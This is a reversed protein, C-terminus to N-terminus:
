QGMTAANAGTAAQPTSPALGTSKKDKGPEKSCDAEAQKLMRGLLVRAAGVQMATKRLGGAPASSIKVGAAGTNDLVKDLVKDTSSTLAPENLVQNVDKKPDAKAQGKTYNIAAENSSILNKQSNVDAPESPVGEGSASAGDPLGTQDKGASITAPNIADEATKRILAVLGSSEKSKHKSHEGHLRSAEEGHRGRISGAINGVQSGGALGLLAGTGAGSKGGKLAGIGAGLAAGAAGGIATGKLSQGVEHKLAGGFAKLKKGKEAEIASSTANGLLARRIHHGEPKEEKAMKQLRDLNSQALAAANKIPSEPQEGHTTEDNTQLGTGANGEQVKDPQLPPSQPPQNQSTAQGSEGADINKESSTAELVQLANPGEGPMLDAEKRLEGGIYGLADALKVALETPVHTTLDAPAASATKTSGRRSEQRAAELNVSLRQNAGAMAGKVLDQLLPREKMTTM